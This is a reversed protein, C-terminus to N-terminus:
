YKKNTKQSKLMAVMMVSVIPLLNWLERIVNELQKETIDETVFYDWRLIIKQLNFNQQILMAKWM